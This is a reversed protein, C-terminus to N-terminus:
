KNDLGLINNPHFFDNPDRPDHGKKKKKKKEEKKSEPFGFDFGSQFGSPIRAIKGGLGRKRKFERIKAKEKELKGQLKAVEVKEKITARQKKIKEVRETHTPLFARRVQEKTPLAKKFFGM